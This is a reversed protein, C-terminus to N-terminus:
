GGGKVPRTLPANPTMRTVADRLWRLAGARSRVRGAAQQVALGRLLSGVTPGPPIGLVVLDDGSALPRLHRRRRLHADLRRRAASPAAVRAWAATTAPVEHLLDYAQGADPASRLQRLLRPAEVRARRMAEQVTPPLGLRGAWAGATEADATLVLVVLALQQEPGLGARRAADLAAQLERGVAGDQRARPGVLEWGQLRGIEILAAVPRREQLVREIETRLRHGSLAPQAGLRAAEGALRRTTPDVRFRLRTAFRAARLIRTPDEVFSLPHLVRLRRAQLDLLGGTTDVVQGWRARDLRVALANVSFDRRALDEEISAPEVDPLAGAAPYRERRATALDIRRGTPLAVTATGFAPHEVARGGIAGALRRALTIAEGGVVLDLDVHAPLQELLMDRVVGGVAAIPTGLEDGLTGARRLLALVGRPLRALRRSVDLPLGGPTAPDRLVVGVPEGSDVVLAFPHAPGLCRRVDLESAHPTVAPTDWFVTAIPARGLGLRLAHALTEPTAGVWEEGLRAAVLRAHRRRAVRLAEAIPLAAAVVGVGPRM